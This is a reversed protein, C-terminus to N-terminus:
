VIISILLFCWVLSVIYMWRGGSQSDHCLLQRPECRPLSALYSIWGHTCRDDFLHEDENSTKERRETRGAM